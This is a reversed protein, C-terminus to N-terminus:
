EGRENKGRKKTLLQALNNGMQSLFTREQIIKTLATHLLTIYVPLLYERLSNGMLHKENKHKWKLSKGDTLLLEITTKERKEQILSIRWYLLTKTYDM